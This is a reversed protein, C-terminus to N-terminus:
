QRCSPEKFSPSQYPLLLKGHNECLFLVICALDQILATSRCSKSRPLSKQLAELQQSPKSSLICVQHRLEERRPCTGCATLLCLSEGLTLRYLNALSASTSKTLPLIEMSSFVPGHATTTTYDSIKKVLNWSTRRYHQEPRRYRPCYRYM